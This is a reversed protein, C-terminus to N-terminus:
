PAFSCLETARIVAGQGVADALRTCGGGVTDGCQHLTCSEFVARRHARLVSQACTEREGTLENFRAIAEDLRDAVLPPRPAPAYRTDGALTQEMADFCKKQAPDSAQRMGELGGDLAPAACGASTVCIM